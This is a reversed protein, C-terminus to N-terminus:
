YFQPIKVIFVRRIQIDKNQTTIQAILTPIKLIAAKPTSGEIGTRMRQKITPMTIIQKRSPPPRGAAIMVIMAAPVIMVANKIPGKISKKLLLTEMGNKFLAFM